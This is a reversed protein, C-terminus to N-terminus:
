CSMYKVLYLYKILPYSAEGYEIYENELAQHM